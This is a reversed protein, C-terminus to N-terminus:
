RCRNGARAAVHVKLHQASPWLRSHETTHPANQRSAAAAPPTDQRRNTLALAVIAAASALSVVSRLLLMWPSREIILQVFSSESGALLAVGRPPMCFGPSRGARRGLYRRPCIRATEDHRRIARLRPARRSPLTLEWRANATALVDHGFLEPTEITSM